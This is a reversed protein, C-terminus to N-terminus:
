ARAVCREEMLLGDQKSNKQTQIFLAAISLPLLWTNGLLVNPCMQLLYAIGFSTTVLWHYGKHRGTFM